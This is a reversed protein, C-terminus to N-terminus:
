SRNKIKLPNLATFTNILYVSLGNDKVICGGGGGCVCVCVCNDREIPGSKVIKAQIKHGQICHLPLGEPPQTNQVQVWVAM